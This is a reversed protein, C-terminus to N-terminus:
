EACLEGEEKSDANVLGNYLEVFQQSLKHRADLYVMPKSQQHSERIKVSSSLFPELIPLGEAKLEEVLERPLRAQAQFQNVVIGGVELQPNHDQQIEQLNHLVSYLARRSFDDCDFPILCSDAAILASRSYFNLAPPTDIFVADYGELEDLGEKLKLMKYRSHLKDHLEELAFSSALVDLGEFATPQIFADLSKPYFSFSLSQDFYDAVTTELDEYAAGMLYQSANGQPDLDVVLTRLGQQACVAALNCSITSKGVGGKQNFVVRRM